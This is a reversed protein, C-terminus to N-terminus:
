VEKFEFATEIELRINCIAGSWMLCHCPHRAHDSIEPLLRGGATETPISACSPLPFMSLFAPFDNEHIFSTRWRVLISSFYMLTSKKDPIFLKRVVSCPSM